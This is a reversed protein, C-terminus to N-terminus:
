FIPQDTWCRWQPHHRNDAQHSQTSGNHWKLPKAGARPPPCWHRWCRYGRYFRTVHDGVRLTELPKSWVENVTVDSAVLWWDDRFAPPPPKINVVREDERLAFAKKRM